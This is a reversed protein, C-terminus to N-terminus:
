GLCTATLLVIKKEVRRRPQLCLGGLGLVRWPLSAPPPGCCLSRCVACAVVTAAVRGAFPWNARDSRGDRAPALSSDDYLGVKAAYRWVAAIM